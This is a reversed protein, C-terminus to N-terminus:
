ILPFIPNCIHPTRVGCSACGCSGCNGSCSCTSCSCPSMNDTLSHNSPLPSSHQNTVTPHRDQQPNFPKYIPEFQQTKTASIHEEEYVDLRSTVEPYRLLPVVCKGRVNQKSLSHSDASIADRAARITSHHNTCPRPASHPIVWSRPPHM